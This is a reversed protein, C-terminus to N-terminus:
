GPIYIGVKTIPVAKRWCKVGPMTEITITERKQASHFKTINSAAIQIAEKLERSLNQQAEEIEAKTVEPNLVDVKDFQLTLERIAQDGSKKVRNLINRVSSELFGLELQPRKTLEKWIEKPPNNFVTM